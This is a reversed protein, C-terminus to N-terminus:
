DDELGALENMEKCFEESDRIELLHDTVHQKVALEIKDVKEQGYRAKIFDKYCQMRMKNFEKRTM